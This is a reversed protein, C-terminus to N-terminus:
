ELVDLYKQKAFYNGAIPIIPDVAMSFIRSIRQFTLKSTLSVTFCIWYFLLEKFGFNATKILLLREICHVFYLTFNIWDHM